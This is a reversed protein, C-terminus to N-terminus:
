ISSERDNGDPSGGHLPDGEEHQDHKETGRMEGSLCELDM